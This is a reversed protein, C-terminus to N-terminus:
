FNARIQLGGTHIAAQNESIRGSYELNLEIGGALERQFQLSWGANKGPQLAQLLEYSVPTDTEGSYNIYTYNLRINVTGKDLIGYRLETGLTNERAREANLINERESLKQILVFRTRLGPQYQLNIENSLLKIQFDRSSFYESTFNKTGADSENVLTFSPNLSWRISLGRSIGSRTDFGNALLLRNNNRLIIYDMSFHKSLRNFSLQNRLSTAITVLDPSNMDVLFPNANRIFDEASNKRDLRYAFQNSFRSLQQLLGEKEKWLRYPDLNISQNFRNTYVSIFEDTPIFVRIFGAQDQFRAVEFEDLERVDNRNYDSWTYVGQGPAVEIYSFEKKAELGSGIEYFTSTSIANRFLRLSYELRSILSNEPKKPDSGEDTFQLSRYTIVSSLQSNPLSLLDFGAKIDDANTYASLSQGSVRYDKRNLYSIFFQNRSSDSNRIFAETENFRFSGPQLSDTQVESWRNDETEEGLGIKILDFLERSLVIRHRLFRTSTSPHESSLLSGNVSLDFGSHRFEGSLNNRWASFIDQKTLHELKYGARAIDKRLFNGNFQLMHENQQEKQGTLNWDREYEVPRFREVPNFDRSVYQYRLGASLRMFSTDYNFFDQDLGAKLAYGVNDDNDLSSYTNFDNNSISAEYLAYTKKSLRRDGGLSVVQKKKPSILLVVPEYSGAPVGNEPAIWRFVKGNASSNLAQYNGNREGVYSFGLRYFASDQNTSYVYVSPYIMNGALTDVKKYLVENNSYGVSDVRNVVASGPDDGALALIIRDTESLDQQISQNKDDTESYVNLWISGKEGIFENSNYLLFRAYSRESYEFEVIIRKDKTILHMPTFSIEATNYDMVYDNELGRKMLTGDIFVRESGALVIIFQEQNNGRLKYPGQNGEIGNFQNRSFNGKSIAGSLNTRLKVKQQPDLDFNGSYNVGKAKKYFTMFQGPPGELEFDGATLNMKENFLSIYVRDFEHIQQSYGEPQIPINNDSIAAVLNLDDSIKGNLQLNLNSNVVVDQNNGFVIGRSLSGRRNITNQDYFGAQVLDESSIRFPDTQLDPKSVSKVPQKHSYSETFNLPFVRYQINLTRTRLNQDVRLLARPHDISYLSDPIESEYEDYLHFSGPVISLSDLSISDQHHVTISKVRINSLDQGYGTYSCYISLIFILAKRM